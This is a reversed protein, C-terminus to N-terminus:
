LLNHRISHPYSSYNSDTTSTGSVTVLTHWNGKNNDDRLFATYGLVLAFFLIIPPTVKQILQIIREIGSFTQLNIKEKQM